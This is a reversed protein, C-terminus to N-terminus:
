TTSVTCGVTVGPRTLASLMGDMDGDSACAWFLERNDRQQQTPANYKKHWEMDKKHLDGLLAPVFPVHEM